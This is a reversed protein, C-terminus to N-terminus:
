KGNKVHKNRHCEKHILELNSLNSKMGGKSIMKKHHIELQEMETNEQLEHGCATCM